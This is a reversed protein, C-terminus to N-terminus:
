GEFLLAGGAFHEIGLVGFALGVLALAQLGEDVPELGLCRFGTLGLGADLHQFPHLGNGRQHRLIHM